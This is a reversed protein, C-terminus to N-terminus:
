PGSWRKTLRCETVKSRSKSPLADANSGARGGRRLL